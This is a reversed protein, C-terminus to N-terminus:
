NNESQQPSSAPLVFPEIRRLLEVDHSQQYAFIIKRADSMDEFSVEPIVPMQIIDQSSFFSQRLLAKTDETESYVVFENIMELVLLTIMYPHNHEDDPWDKSYNSWLLNYSNYLRKVQRPNRLNLKLLWDYFAAKQSASLQQITEINVPSTITSEKEPLLAARVDMKKIDDIIDQLSEKPQESGTDSDQAQEPPDVEVAGDGVVTDAEPKRTEYFDPDNWIHALYQAVDLNDPLPLSVPLHIVKGLYDRAISMPDNQHFESLQKYHCALAPLAIRQDMAIIVTVWRLGLVLRVAEFTQVIGDVGCRDLDDIFFILRRQKNSWLRNLCIECLTKIQKEMVPITGLHEQYKPLRLYTSLEKALPEASVTKWFKWVTVLVALSGVGFMGSRILEDTEGFGFLESQISILTSVVLLTLLVLIAVIRGGHLQAAFEGIVLPKYIWRQYWPWEKRASTLASIMEHTIGAQLNQTKEYSWANFEGFLYETHPNNKDLQKQLQEIVSSKGIGWNGLLGITLHNADDPISLRPELVKVLKDRGLFDEASPNDDEPKEVPTEKSLPKSPEDGNWVGDLIAQYDQKIQQLFNRETELDTEKALEDLSTVWDLSSIESPVGKDGWLSKRRLDAPALSTSELALLDDEASAYVSVGANYAADEAETYASTHAYAVAADAASDSADAAAEYTYTSGDVSAAAYAAADSAYTDVSIESTVADAAGAAIGSQFSWSSLAARWIISVRDIQNMVFSDSAQQLEILAFPFVRLACRGAFLSIKERGTDPNLELIKQLRKEIDNRQFNPSDGEQVFQSQPSGGKKVAGMDIDMESKSYKSDSEPPKAM